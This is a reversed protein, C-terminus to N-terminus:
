VRFYQKYQEPIPLVKLVIGIILLSVAVTLLQQKSPTLKLGM